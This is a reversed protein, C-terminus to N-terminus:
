LGKKLQQTKEVDDEMATELAVACNEDRDREADHPPRCEQMTSNNYIIRSCHLLGISNICNHMLMRYCMSVM